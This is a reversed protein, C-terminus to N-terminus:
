PRTDSKIRRGDLEVEKAEIIEDLSVRDELVDEFDANVEQELRKLEEAGMGHKDQLKLTVVSLIADLSLRIGAQKGQRYSKQIDKLSYVNPKM